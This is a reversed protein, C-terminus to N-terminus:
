ESTLNEHVRRLDEVLSGVLVWQRPPRSIVLPTTLAPVQGTMTSESPEARRLLLRTDHGARRLQEAIDQVIPDEGLDPEYRDCVGRTMGALQTVIPTFRDLLESLGTLDAQHQRGRPNFALSDRGAAIAADAGALMPRLLRVRLLLEDLQAPTQPTVLADALREFSAAMEEGLAEIKEHAPRVLVPPVIAISVLFGIAAGILTEVVRDLAYAPTSVGISLVLLSSIAIQNAGVPTMQLLWAILLGAAVAVLVVWWQTGFLLGLASAFVVGGVVGATYELARTFSQNVSPQVVLLAAIAAFLPPPGPVLLPAILWAALTAVIAKVVQLFPGRRPVRVAKTMRATVSM